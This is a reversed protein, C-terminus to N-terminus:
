AFRKVFELAKGAIERWGADITLSHGRGAMKVIKKKYSANAIAWPVTHDSDASVILM